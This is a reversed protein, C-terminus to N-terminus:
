QMFRSALLNVHVPFGDRTPIRTLLYLDRAAYCALMTAHALLRSVRADLAHLEEHRAVFRRLYANQDIRATFRRALQVM